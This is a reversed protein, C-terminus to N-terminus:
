SQRHEFANHMQLFHHTTAMRQEQKQERTQSTTEKTRRTETRTKDNNKNTNSSNNSNNNNNNNNNRESSTQGSASGKATPRPQRIPLGLTVVVDILWQLSNREDWLSRCDNKISHWTKRKRKRGDSHHYTSLHDEQFQFFVMRSDKLFCNQFKARDTSITLDATEM